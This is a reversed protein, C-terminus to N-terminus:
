PQQQDSTPLQMCAFSAIYNSSRYHKYTSNTDLVNLRFFSCPSIKPLSNVPRMAHDDKCYSLKRTKSLNTTYPAERLHPHPVMVFKSSITHHSSIIHQMCHNSARVSELIACPPVSSKAVKASSSSFLKSSSNCARYLLSTM